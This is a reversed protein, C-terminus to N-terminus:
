IDSIVSLVAKVLSDENLVNLQRYTTGADDGADDSIKRICAFRVGYFKCVSAIASTEMDCSTAGYNNKLTDRLDADQVFCDGTVATGGFINSFKSRFIRNIETDSYFIYDDQDPKQCPSFGLPTMDFDHELFRDPVCLDNRQVGSIGGSLGCNLIIENGRECLAAAAAAANVKGIGCLVSTVEIEGDKGNVKFTHGKKGGIKIKKMRYLAAQAELPKYEEVDAIIIGIKLM